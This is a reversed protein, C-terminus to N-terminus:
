LDYSFYFTTCIKSLIDEFHLVHSIIYLVPFKFIRITSIRFYVEITRISIERATYLYM